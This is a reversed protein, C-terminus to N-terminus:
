YKARLNVFFLGYEASRRAFFAIKKLPPMPPPLEFNEIFHANKAGKCHERRDRQSVGDCFDCFDSGIKLSFRRSYIVKYNIIYTIISIYLSVACRKKKSTVNTIKHNQRTLNKQCLCIPLQLPMTKIFM